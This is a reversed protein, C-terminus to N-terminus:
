DVIIDHGVVKIEAINLRNLSEIAREVPETRM